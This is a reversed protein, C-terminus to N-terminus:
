SHFHRSRSVFIFVQRWSPLLVGTVTAPRRSPPTTPDERVAELEASVCPPCAGRMGFAEAGDPALPM